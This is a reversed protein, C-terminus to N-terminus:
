LLGEAMVISTPDSISAFPKKGDFEFEAFEVEAVVRHGFKNMLVHQTAASSLEGVCTEFGEIKALTQAQLRLNKYVGRGGAERAVVALDVM